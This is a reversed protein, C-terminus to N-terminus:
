QASLVTRQNTTLSFCQQIAVSEASLDLRVPRSYFFIIFEPKFRRPRAGVRQLSCRYLRLCGKKKLIMWSYMFLGPNDMFVQVEQKCFAVVKMENWIM